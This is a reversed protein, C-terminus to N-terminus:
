NRFLVIFYICWSLRSLTAYKQILPPPTQFPHSQTNPISFCAYVVTCLSLFVQKHTVPQPSRSHRTLPSLLEAATQSITRNLIYVCMRLSVLIYAPDVAVVGHSSSNLKFSKRSLLFERRSRQAGYVNM